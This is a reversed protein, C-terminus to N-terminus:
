QFVGQNRYNVETCLIAGSSKVVIESVVFMSFKHLGLDVGAKPLVVAGYRHEGGTTVVGKELIKSM